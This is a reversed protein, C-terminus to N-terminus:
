LRCPLCNKHQSNLIFCLKKPINKTLFKLLTLFIHLFLLVATTIYVQILIRVIVKVPKLINGETEEKWKIQEREM